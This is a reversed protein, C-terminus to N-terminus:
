MKEFTISLSCLSCERLWLGQEEDVCTETFVHAHQKTEVTRLPSPADTCQLPATDDVKSSSTGAAITTSTGASPQQNQALYNRQIYDRVSLKKALSQWREIVMKKRKEEEAKQKRFVEDKCVKLCIIVYAFM